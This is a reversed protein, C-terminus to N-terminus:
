ENIHNLWPMDGKAASWLLQPLTMLNDKAEKKLADLYKKPVSVPVIVSDDPCTRAIDDLILQKIYGQMSPVSALKDIIAKDNENHLRFGYVRRHQKDYKMQNITSKKPM